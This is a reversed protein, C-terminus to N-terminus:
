LFFTPNELEKKKRAEEEKAMKEYPCGGPPPGQPQPPASGPPPAPQNVVKVGLDELTVPANYVFSSMVRKLKRGGCSKCKRAAIRGSGSMEAIATVTGCDRCEYEYMPM